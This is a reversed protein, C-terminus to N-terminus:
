PSVNLAVGFIHCAASPSDQGVQRAGADILMVSGDPKQLLVEVANASAVGFSQVTGNAFELVAPNAAGQRRAMNMPGGSENSVSIVMTPNEVGALPRADNCAASITGFGARRLLVAPVGAANDQVDLYRGFPDSKPVDALFKGPIQGAHPGSRITAVLDGAALARSAAARRADKGDVKGANRAFNVAAISTGGLSVFLAVCAVVM